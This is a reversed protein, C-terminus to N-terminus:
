WFKLLKTPSIGKLLAEGSEKERRKVYDLFHSLFAEWYKDIRKKAEPNEKRIQISMEVCAKLDKMVVKMKDELENIDPM